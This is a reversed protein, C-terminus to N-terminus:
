KGAIIYDVYAKGNWVRSSHFVPIIVQQGVEYLTQTFNKVTFIFCSKETNIFFKLVQFSKGNKTEDEKVNAIKGSFFLGTKGQQEDVM